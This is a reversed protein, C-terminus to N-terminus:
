RFLELQVQKPHNETKNKKLESKEHSRLQNEIEYVFPSLKRATNKGFVQRKTAHTLFLHEKARTMAVYFLRKEEDVNTIEQETRKYPILGDECGAIFVVPFELGKAAHMTMLTVKESKFDCADVDTCLSIMEWFGDMNCQYFNAMKLLRSFSEETFSNKQILRSIKPSQECLFLLRQDMQMNQLVQRYTFIKNIFGTLKLQNSRNMGPVPFRLAQNFAQEINFQNQFCWNNFLKSTASDIRTEFIQISRQFDACSGLGSVIRFLSLIESIGPKSFEHDRNVMQYPIGAHQFVEGFVDGQKNTRYLIAFDSFSMDRNEIVDDSMGFDISHMGLGGIMQEIIKGIAVAESKGTSFNMVSITKKGDIESFVKPESPNDHQDRIVHFSAQLITETSRYNRTLNIVKAQPYDVIFKKFYQVDSGRFGYISQDPDGIAFLNKNDPALAKVIRYQGQNLDQYEDIFIHTYIKRYKQCINKDTE